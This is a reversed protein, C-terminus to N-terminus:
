TDENQDLKVCPIEAMRYLWVECCWLLMYIWHLNLTLAPWQAEFDWPIPSLSSKSSTHGQGKERHCPSLGVQSVKWWHKALRGNFFFFVEGFDKVCFDITVQIGQHCSLISKKVWVEWLSLNVATSYFCILCQSCPCFLFVSIRKCWQTWHTTWPGNLCSDCICGDSRVGAVSRGRWLLQRPLLFKSFGASVIAM